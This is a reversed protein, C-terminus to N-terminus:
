SSGSLERAALIRNTLTTANADALVVEYSCEVGFSMKIGYAIRKAQKQSWFRFDDSSPVADDDESPPTGSAAQTCVPVLTPDADLCLTIITLLCSRVNQFDFSTPKSAPDVVIDNTYIVSRVGRQRVM